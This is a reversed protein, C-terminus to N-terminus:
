TLTAAGTTANVASCLRETRAATTPTALSDVEIVFVLDGLRMGRDVADAIYDAATVVGAADATKYTFMRVGDKGADPNVMALYNGDYAM